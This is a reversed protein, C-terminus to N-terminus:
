GGPALELRIRIPRADVAITLTGRATPPVVAPRADLREVAKVRMGPRLSLPVTAPKDAWVIQFPGASDRGMCAVGGSRAECGEFISGALWRALRQLVEYGARREGARTVIGYVDSDLAYYYFRELGASAGVVLLQALVDIAQEHTRPVVGPPVPGSGTLSDVGAETNYLPLHAVGQRQMVARVEGLQHVLHMPDRSYFHYCIAQVYRKGGSELFLELRDPGNVFGPTCLPTGPAAANIAQRAAAALEVMSAMSGTFFGPQGRDRAFDSFHPENWLEYMAVRKGYRLSVRRVYEEWHALRVPEAACGLGYPCPENPRSSLWRPTSGLVYLVEVGREEAADVYRDMREFRWEGARPAVDLWQTTSDWLRLARFDIDPWQTPVAKEGPNLVLRHMHMALYREPM